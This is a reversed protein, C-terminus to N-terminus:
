KFLDVNKGICVRRAAAETLRQNGSADKVKRRDLLIEVGTELVAYLFYEIIGHEQSGQVVRHLSRQHVDVIKNSNKM